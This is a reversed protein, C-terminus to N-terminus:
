FCTLYWFPGLYLCYCYQRYLFGNVSTCKIKMKNIPKSTKCMVGIIFRLQCNCHLPCYCIPSTIISVLLFTAALLLLKTHSEMMVPVLPYVYIWMCYTLILSKLLLIFHFELPVFDCSFHQSFTVMKRAPMIVEDVCFVSKVSARWNPPMWIFMNLIPCKKRKQNTKKNTHNFKGELGFYEHDMNHEENFGPWKKWITGIKEGINSFIQILVYFCTFVTRWLFAYM